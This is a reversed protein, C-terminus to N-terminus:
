CFNFFIFFYLSILPFYKVKLLFYIFLFPNLSSKFIYYKTKCLNSINQKIYCSFFSLFIFLIKQRQLCFQLLSCLFSFFIATEDYHIFDIFIKFYIYNFFSVHSKSSFASFCFWHSSFCKLKKMLTRGFLIYEVINFLLM